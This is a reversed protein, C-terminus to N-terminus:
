NRKKKKQDKIEFSKKETDSIEDKFTKVRTADHGLLVKLADSKLEHDDGKEEFIPAVDEATLNLTKGFFTILTDKESKKM